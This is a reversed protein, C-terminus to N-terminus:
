IKLEKEKKVIKIPKSIEESDDSSIDLDEL